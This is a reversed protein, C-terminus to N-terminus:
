CAGPQRVSSPDVQYLERKVRKQYARVADAFNAAERPSILQYQQGDQVKVIGSPRVEYRTTRVKPKGYTDTWEEHWIWTYEDLCFFERRGGKPVPGFLQGGIKAERGLLDRYFRSKREEEDKLGVVNLIKKLM